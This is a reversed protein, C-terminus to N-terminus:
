RFISFLTAPPTFGTDLMKKNDFVLDNALKNYFSYIWVSKNKLLFCLLRAPIKVLSLPIPIVKRSPQIKSKQFTQIIDNFTYSNKDCVNIINFFQPSTEHQIRFDIFAVLNKRALASMKQKGSGFRLYAMKKPALVRKELNMSWQADYVPALRLIDLKKLRKEGYLKKLRTEADLKSQAYDSTPFCRDMEGIVKETHTEGYVSISSLFIFYVDPNASMAARAMKETALSNIREYLDASKKSRLKQHALGACHIVVDPVYTDCVKKLATEDEIDLDVFVPDNQDGFCAQRQRDLAIVKYTPSIVQCVAQGVFGAGGTVLVTKMTRGNLKDAAMVEM